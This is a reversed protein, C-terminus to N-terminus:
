AGPHLGRKRHAAAQATHPQRTKESHNQNAEFSRTLRYVSPPGGGRGRGTFNEADNWNKRGGSFHRVNLSASVTASTGRSPRSLLACSFTCRHLLGQGLNEQVRPM